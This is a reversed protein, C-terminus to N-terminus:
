VAPFASGNGLWWSGFSHLLLLLLPLILYRPVHFGCLIVFLCIQRNGLCLAYATRPDTRLLVLELPHPHPATVGRLYRWSPSPSAGLRKARAELLVASGRRLAQNREERKRTCEARLLSDGPSAIHTSRTSSRRRARSTGNRSDM